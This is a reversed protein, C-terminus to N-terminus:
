LFAYYNQTNLPDKTRRRNLPTRQGEEEQRRRRSRRVKERTGEEEQCGRTPCIQDGKGDVGVDREQIPGHVDEVRSREQIEGEEQRRSCCFHTQHEQPVHWQEQGLLSCAMRRLPNLVSTVHALDWYSDSHSRSCVEELEKVDRERQKAMMGMSMQFPVKIKEKKQQTMSSSMTSDTRCLLSAM